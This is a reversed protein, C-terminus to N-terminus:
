ERLEDLLDRSIIRFVFHVLVIDAIAREDEELLCCQGAEVTDGLSLEEQVEAFLVWM